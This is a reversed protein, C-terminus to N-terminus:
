KLQFTIPLRVHSKVSSDGKRAPEFEWSKVSAMAANDLVEYGSSTEVRVEEVAGKENVLALIIVTGQLNRKRATEPYNPRPNNKYLPRAEVVQGGSNGSNATGRPAKASSLQAGEGGGEKRSIDLDIAIPSDAGGIMKSGGPDATETSLSTDASEKPTPDKAAGDFSSAASIVSNKPIRKKQKAVSEKVINHDFILPTMLPPVPVQEPSKPLSPEPATCDLEPTGNEEPFDCTLVVDLSKFEVPRVTVRSMWPLIMFIFCAHVAVSILIAPLLEHLSLKRDITQDGSSLDM